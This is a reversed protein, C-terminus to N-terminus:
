ERGKWQVRRTARPHVDLKKAMRRFAPGHDVPLGEVYQWLHIMEHRLTHEAEGPAGHTCLRRSIVIELPHSSFHGNRRRMHRSLFLPVAPLRGRFSERNVREFEARLRELLPRDLPHVRRRKPRAGEGAPAPPIAHIFRRVTERAEDRLRASRTSFLVGVAHIVREEARAFAANLRLTMGRDGVSAMIRRNQTFVVRRYGSWAGRAIALV